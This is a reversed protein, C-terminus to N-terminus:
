PNRHLPEHHTTKKIDNIIFHIDQGLTPNHLADQEMPDDSYHRLAMYTEIFIVYVSLAIVIGCLFGKLRAADGRGPRKGKRAAGPVTPAPIHLSRKAAGAMPFAKEPREAAKPRALSKAGEERPVSPSGAEERSLSNLAEGVERFSHFRLEPSISQCRNVLGTLADSYDQGSARGIGIVESFMKGLSFIDSEPLITGGRKEPATYDAHGEIAKQPYAGARIEELSIASGFDILHFTGDSYLINAAAIDNHRIGREEILSLSGTLSRFLSVVHKEGLSKGDLTSLHKLINRSGYFPMHICLFEEGDMLALGNEEIRCVGPIGGLLTLIDREKRFAPENDKSFVKYCDRGRFFCFRDQRQQGCLTLENPYDQSNFIIEM